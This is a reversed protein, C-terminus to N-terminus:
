FYINKRALRAQCLFAIAKMDHSMIFKQLTIPCERTRACTMQLTAYGTPTASTSTQVVGTTLMQM